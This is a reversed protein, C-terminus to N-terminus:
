QAKCPLTEMFVHLHTSLRLNTTKMKVKAKIHQGLPDLVEM